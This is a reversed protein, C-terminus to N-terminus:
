ALKRPFECRRCVQKRRCIWLVHIWRNNAPHVWSKDRSSVAPIDSTKRCDKRSEAGDISFEPKPLIPFLQDKLPWGDYRCNKVRSSAAGRGQVPGAAYVLVPIAPHVPM